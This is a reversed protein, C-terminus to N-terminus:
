HEIVIRNLLAIRHSLTGSIDVMKGSSDNIKETISNLMEVTKVVEEIANKQEGTASTIESSGKSVRNMHEHLDKTMSEQDMCLELIKRSALNVDRVAGNIDDISQSSEMILSTEGEINKVIDRVINQITRSQEVSSDALKNIEDAVVAFGRGHEGARAAEIAANLSLLNTQEAINNIIEAINEIVKSSDKLSIMGDKVITLRETIRETADMSREGLAVTSQAASTIGGLSESFEHLLTGSDRIIQDQSFANISVADISNCIEEVVAATEQLNTRQQDMEGSLSSTASDVTTSIMILDDTSEIVNNLVDKMVLNKEEIVGTSDRLDVALKSIRRGMMVAFSFLFGPYGVTIWFFDSMIIRNMMLADHVLAILFVTFGFFMTVAESNKKILSKVLVVGWMIQGLLGIPGILDFRWGTIPDEVSATISLISTAIAAIIVVIRAWRIQLNLSKELFIYIWAVMLASFVYFIKDQSNWSLPGFSVLWFHTSLLFWLLSM